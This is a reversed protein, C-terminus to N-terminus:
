PSGHVPPRGPGCLPACRAPLSCREAIGPTPANQSAVRSATLPLTNSSRAGPKTFPPSKLACHSAQQTRPHTCVPSANGTFAGACVIM